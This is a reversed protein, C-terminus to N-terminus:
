AGRMYRLEKVANGIACAALLSMVVWLALPTDDGTRPVADPAPTEGGHEESFGVLEAYLSEDKTLQRTMPDFVPGNDSGIHWIYTYDESLNPLNSLVSFPIYDANAYSTDIAEDNLFFTVKFVRKAAVDFHVLRPLGDVEGNGLTQGWVLSTRAHQLLHTVEGSAFRAATRAEAQGLIEYGNIGSPAGTLDLYYCNSINGQTSNQGVISGTYATGNVEGTNACDSIVNYAYNQGVVGGVSENGNISGTNACDTIVSQTNCGSIGGVYNSTGSVSGNNICGTIKGDGANEGVIGGVYSSAGSVSGNNMCDSIVGTSNYGAIGGVVNTTSSVNGNNTCDTITGYNYCVIGGTIGKGTIEANNKCNEITGGANGGAISSTAYDGTIVGEMTLNKVTGGDGIHDFLAFFVSNIFAVNRMTITHGNGDFAGTFPYRSNGIPQWNGTITIDTILLFHADQFQQINESLRTLDELTAIQYPNAQTGAGSFEASAAGAICFLLALSAILMLIMRLSIRVPRWKM